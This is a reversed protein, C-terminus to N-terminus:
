QQTCIPKEEDSPLQPPHLRVLSQNRQRTYTTQDTQGAQSATSSVSPFQSEVTGWSLSLSLSLSDRHSLTLSLLACLALAGVCFVQKISSTLLSSHRHHHHAHLVMRASAKAGGGALGGLLPSAARCGAATQRAMVDVTPQNGHGPTFFELPQQVSSYVQPPTLWAVAKTETAAM